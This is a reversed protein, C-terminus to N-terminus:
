ERKPGLAQLPANAKEKSLLNKIRQREADDVSTELLNQIRKIDIAHSFTNM